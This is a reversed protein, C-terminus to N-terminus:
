PSSRAFDSWRLRLKPHSVIIILRSGSLVPVLRDMFRKDPSALRHHQAATTNASRNWAQSGSIWWGCTEAPVDSMGAQIRDESQRPPADVSADAIGASSLSWCGAEGFIGVHGIQRAACIAPRSNAGGITAPNGSGIWPSALRKRATVAEGRVAARMWRGCARAGGSGTHIEANLRVKGSAAEGGASASM